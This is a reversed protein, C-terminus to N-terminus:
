NTFRTYTVLTLGQRLIYRLLFLMKIKGFRLATKVSSEMHPQSIASSSIIEFDLPPMEAGPRADLRQLGAKELVQCRFPEPFGGTPQSLQGQLFEVVSTPLNLAMEPNAAQDRIDQASLANAVMFQALDGVVQHM